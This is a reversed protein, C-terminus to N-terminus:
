GAVFQGFRLFLPNMAIALMQTQRELEDPNVLAMWCVFACTSFWTDLWWGVVTRHETVPLARPDERERQVDRLITAIEEEIPQVVQRLGELPHSGPFTVNIDIEPEDIVPMFGLPLHTVAVAGLVSLCVLLMVTAIPRDLPLDTLKM